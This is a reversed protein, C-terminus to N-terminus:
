RLFWLISPILDGVLLHSSVSSFPTSFRAFSTPTTAFPLPAIGVPECRKRVIILLAKALNLSNSQEISLSQVTYNYSM